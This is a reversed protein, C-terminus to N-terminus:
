RVLNIGVSVGLCFMIVGFLLLIVIIIEGGLQVEIIEKAKVKESGELKPNVFTEKM